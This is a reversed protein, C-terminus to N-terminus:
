QPPHRTPPPINPTNQCATADRRRSSAAVARAVVARAREDITSRSISRPPEPRPTMQSQADSPRSRGSSARLRHSSDERNILSSFLSVSERRKTM